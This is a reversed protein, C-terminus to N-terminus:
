KVRWSLSEESFNVAHKRNKRVLIMMLGITSIGSIAFGLIIGPPTYRVEIVGNANPIEIWRGVAVPQWDAGALRYAWGELGRERIVLNSSGSLQVKFFGPSANLVEIDAQPANILGPGEIAKLSGDVLKHTVGIEALQEDSAESGILFMNGNEAPNMAGHGRLLDATSRAVLSDYGGAERVRFRAAINPPLMTKPRPAIGWKDNIIAIRELGKVGNLVETAELTSSARWLPASGAFAALSLLGAAIRRNTVMLYGLGCVIGVIVYPMAGIVATRPWDALPGEFTPPALSIALGAPLLSVVVAAFAAKAQPKPQAFAALGCAGILALFGARTPSGTASWGPVFQYLLSSLKWCLLMGIVIVTIPEALRRTTRYPVAALMFILAVGIGFSSEAFNDGRKSAIGYFNSLGLEGSGPFAQTPIGRFLPVIVGPLEFGQLYASEFAALGAETAAGARHSEAGARLVPLLHPAALMAGVSAGFLYAVPVKWDSRSRALSLALGGILGFFAFQTHGALIMMAVSPAILAIRWIPCRTPASIGAFLWPVWAVTTVVSALGLWSICFASLAFCVGALAAGEASAGLNLSWRRVGFGGLALHLLGLLSVAFTVPLHLLGALIHPPYLSGSQGNALLPTGLLSYPNWGPISLASWSKFVQDRWGYFQLSSDAQLVDWPTSPAPNLWPAMTAIQDDQVFTKDGLFLAILLCIAVAIAAPALRVFKASSLKDAPMKM